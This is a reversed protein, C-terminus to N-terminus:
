GLDVKGLLTCDSSVDRDLPFSSHDPPSSKFGVGLTRFVHAHSVPYACNQAWASQRPIYLTYLNCISRRRELTLPKALSPQCGSFVARYCTNYQDYIRSAYSYLYSVELTYAENIRQM